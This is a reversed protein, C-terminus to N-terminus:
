NKQWNNSDFNAYKLVNNLYDKVEGIAKDYNNRTKNICKWNNSNQNPYFKEHMINGQEDIIIYANNNKNSKPSKVGNIAVNLILKKLNDQQPVQQKQKSEQNKRQNFM